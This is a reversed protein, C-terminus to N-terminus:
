DRLSASLRGAGDSAAELTAALTELLLIQARRFDQFEESAGGEAEAAAYLADLQGREGSAGAARGLRRCLVVTEIWDRATIFDEEAWGPTLGAYFAYEAPAGSSVKSRRSLTRRNMESDSLNLANLCTFVVFASVTRLMVHTSSLPEDTTSALSLEILVASLTLRGIYCDVCDSVFERLSYTFLGWDSNPKEGPRLHRALEEHVNRFEAIPRTSRYRTLVRAPIRLSGTTIPRPSRYRCARPALPLLM